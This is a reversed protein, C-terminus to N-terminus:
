LSLLVWVVWGLLAAALVLLCDGVNLLHVYRGWKEPGLKAAKEADATRLCEALALRAHHIKQLYAHDLVAAIVLAALAVFFGYRPAADLSALRDL